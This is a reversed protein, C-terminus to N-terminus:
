FALQGPSNIEGEIRDLRPGFQGIARERYDLLFHVPVGLRKALDQIVPDQAAKEREQRAITVEEDEGAAPAHQCGPANKHFGVTVDPMDPHSPVNTDGMWGKRWDRSPLKLDLRQRMTMKGFQEPTIGANKLDQEFQPDLPM